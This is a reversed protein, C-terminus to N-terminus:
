YKLDLLKKLFPIYQSLLVEEKNRFRIFYDLLEGNETKNLVINGVLNRGEYLLISSNSNFSSIYDASTPDIAAYNIEGKVTHDILKLRFNITKYFYGQRSYEIRADVKASIVTIGKTKLDIDILLKGVKNLQTRKLEISFEYDTAKVKTSIQEPLNNSIRATHIITAIEQDDAKLIADIEVPFAPRSSFAQSQYNNLDLRINNKNSKESPFFLSIHDSDDKKEFTELLSNWQYQGKKEDFNFPIEPQTPNAKKVFPLPTSIQEFLFSLAKYEPKESGVSLLNVLNGNLIKMSRDAEARDLQKSNCASLILISILSFSVLLNKM